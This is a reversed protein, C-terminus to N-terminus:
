SRADRVQFLTVALALLAACLWLAQWNALSENIVIYPVSLALLLATM